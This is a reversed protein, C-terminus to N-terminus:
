REPTYVLVSMAGGAEADRCGLFIRGDAAVALDPWESGSPRVPDTGGLSVWAEEIRALCRIGAPSGESNFAVVPVDDVLVLDLTQPHSSTDIADDFEDTDLVTWDTGDYYKVHLDGGQRFAIWPRGQADVTMVSSDVSNYPHVRDDGVSAWAGTGTLQAVHGYQMADSYLLYPTGGVLALALNNDTSTALDSSVSWSTGDWRQFGISSVDDPRYRYALMPHEADDLALAPRYVDEDVAIPDPASWVGAECAYLYGNAENDNTAIWVRDDADCVLSFFTHPAHMLSESGGQPEYATGTWRSVQQRPEGVPPTTLSYGAVPRDAADLTLRAYAVDAGSLNEGHLSWAGQAPDWGPDLPDDGGPATPSGDNSDSCAVVFLLLLLGALASRRIMTM